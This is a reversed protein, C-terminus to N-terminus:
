TSVTRAVKRGGLSGMTAAIAVASHRSNAAHPPPPDGDPVLPDDLLVCSGGASMHSEPCHFLALQDQPFM